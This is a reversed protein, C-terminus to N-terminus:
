GTTQYSFSKVLGLHELEGIVLNFDGQLHKKLKAKKALSTGSNKHNQMRERVQSDIHVEIFTSLSENDVYAKRMNKVNEGDFSNGNQRMKSTLYEEKIGPVKTEIFGLLKIGADSIKLLTDNYRELPYFLKNADVAFDKFINRAYQLKEDSRLKFYDDIFRILGDKFQESELVRKSFVKPNDIINQMLINFRGQRYSVSYGYIGIIALIPLQLSPNAIFPTVATLIASPISDIVAQTGAKLKVIAM